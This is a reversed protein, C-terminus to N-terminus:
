FKKMFNCRNSFNTTIEHFLQEHGWLMLRLSSIDFELRDNEDVHHSCHFM